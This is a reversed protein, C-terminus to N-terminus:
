NVVVLFGTLFYLSPYFFALGSAAALIFLLAVIWHNLREYATYRVIKSM